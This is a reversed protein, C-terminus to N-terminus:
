IDVTVPKWNPIQGPYGCPNCIVRCQDVEYDNYNHMHGHIWLKIRPRDLIFESHNSAYAGNLESEVYMPAVSKFTPAHHTVVVVKEFAPMAELYKHFTQLTEICRSVTKAPKLKTYGASDDVIQRYDNMMMQATFMTSGDLNDMNTWMTGGLFLIGDLVVFDRELFHVNEAVSTYFEKLVELSKVFKGHYFEHNGAIVVVHKWKNALDEMFAEFKQKVPLRWSNDDVAELISAVIIDGALVIVEANDTNELVPWEGFELHLDSCVTIKM